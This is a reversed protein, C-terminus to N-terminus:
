KVKALKQTVTKVEGNHKSIIKYFYLGNAIEDGDEDKGDWYIKNFGIQLPSSPVIERILRGAVTFIKIKFEEPPIIGRLEFTFNTNDSFPNPYNFVQLLDPNNYVNFVSRSSTSDFFNGSADKALVELVHRGDELNPKWTIVARSNPYPTYNYTIDPGPVTLVKPINKHTHVLTFYTSDLPLPSNDELTIVVEPKSSIIDGNIIERGDFTINFLPNASDRVVNFNGNSSNNFTYYERIPSTAVLSVNIPSVPASYLLDSTNITKSVITFSDPPVNIFTTFFATDALNHYFDLRLSDAQTYGINDVKYSMEIPFGQLLSDSSFVIRDPYLNLEPFYDYNVQVSKLKIPESAGFSSDIFNFNLKLYSYLESNLNSIDYNSPINIALTDWIQSQNNKGLLFNNFEGTSGIADINFVLDHWKRSPGIENTSTFGLSELYTGRFKFFGPQYPFQLPKFTSSYLINRDWDFTWAYLINPRKLTLWEEEFFGNKNYRRMYQNYFSEATFVYDGQVFFNSFGIESSGLFEVDEGLKIWGNQPDFTRLTYKNRKLGYGASLNYIYQGDSALYYGGNQLLGDETPLLRDPIFIRSTDATSTSIRFLTSDDGTAVYIYGDSHYFIQNKIEVDINGLPGYNVGKTTGNEGTGLMYIKSKKGDRHFSVDGFYIYTGDTTISTLQTTDSPLFIFISDILKNESPRPPLLNTNLILSRLQESYIINNNNFNKLQKSKALYGSGPLSTISFSKVNSKNTDTDSIIFCQWFYEGQELVPSKWRVVGDISQLIPSDILMPSNIYLSTDIQIKYSFERQVYDGVDLILFEIQDNSSFYNEVPKLIIPEGVSYVSFNASAINDNHDIEAITDLENIVVILKKLGAEKPIWNFFTTDNEGFNSIRNTGILTSDNIISEYLQVTLTDNPFTRGVNYLGITVRVTDEIIPNPPNITIDSTKVVFDPNKPITLELAPDGLLTLLAIMTGYQQYSKATNIANGIVYNEITFIDRFVVDNFSATTPWLTVGASGFFAISGKGPVSNFIEGFIEQNDYHATYCTVSIVFPLRDGNQLALIDDNTFVLDWQLGGGHGYYNVVVAGKNIERRIEPGEGFFPIYEPKNPYRFVKSTKMGAPKLYTNELFTNRDNFRFNNEDEASLGSSLLLINQKWDKSIDAPYNIIKDVLLNAEEMTECSLRGIAIDPTLDNGVVTVIANDSPAQGYIIAHYPISPIYNNRSNPNIKRYDSSMDGMLAIFSPAPSQWNEFTYKAFKQLSIPDILGASFEDYIDQVDVVKIRPNEFGSLNSSRYMGLREAASKFDQHTIIIYDAGNSINRLDSPNDRKISDVSMYYNEDVCFYETRQTVTDTFYVSKDIDNPIYPNLIYEGREPIYIRMNNGFYQFLYYNNQGYDNPSSIFNFLGSSMKHLRWYDLEIWNLRVLDDGSPSCTTSDLGVIIYNSDPSCYVSDGGLGFYFIGDITASNQGSWSVTNGIQKFNWKVWANHATACNLNTLGHLNVRLRGQNKYIDRYFAISDKFYENFFTFPRFGRVEISTWNWYDRQDNPAYGFHDYIKDKEWHITQVSSVILNNFNSPYGNIEQYKYTSDAQYSFWYVNNTQYINLGSYPSNKVPNGTFQFYDGSNFIGDPQSDVLDIPLSVGNNIIEIKGDQIGSSPSIGSNILQDYTIRYVGKQNLFLKYYDKNPNYWYDEQPLDSISKVKGLFGLAQDSNIITAKVIDETVRDSVPEVLNTFNLDQKFEIRLVIRKNFILTREVPNFQYPSVSLAATKIYRFIAESNIQAADLPYLSNTGYIDQKYNLKELPQNGSDPTSVIFKDTFIEREVEQINVVANKNLPIGISYFRNPLYPEGPNRLSYQDDIINTFKIGDLIFDEVGFKDKFNFELILETEDSKIIKYDQSYSTTLFSFSILILSSVNIIYNKM